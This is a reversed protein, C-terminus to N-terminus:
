RHCLTPTKVTQRQREVFKRQKTKIKQERLTSETTQGKIDRRGNSVRRSGITTKTKKQRKGWTMKKNNKNNNDRTTGPQKGADVERVHLDKRNLRKMEPTDREDTNIPSVFPRLSVASLMM